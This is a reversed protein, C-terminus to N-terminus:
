KQDQVQPTPPVTQMDNDGGQTKEGQHYSKVDGRMFLHPGERWGKSSPQDQTKPHNGSIAFPLQALESTM